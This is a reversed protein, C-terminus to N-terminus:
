PAPASEPAMLVLDATEADYQVGQVVLVVGDPSNVRRVVLGSQLCYSLASSLIQVAEAPQILPVALASGAGRRTKITRPKDTQVSNALSEAM